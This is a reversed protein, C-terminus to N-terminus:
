WTQGRRRHGSRTWTGRRLGYLQNVIQRRVYRDTQEERERFFFAIKDLPSGITVFGKVKGALDRGVLGVNMRNNIRNLADYAVVSGLSHGVVIVRQYEPQEPQEPQEPKKLLWELKEVAGDLMAKRVKFHESKMDTATYVTVDGFSDVVFSKGLRAIQSVLLAALPSRQVLKGLVPMLMYVLRLGRGGYKLYWYKDFQLGERTRKVADSKEYKQLLAKNDEYLKRAEEGTKVLWDFVQRYNTKRQTKHAWYYEFCDIATNEEGGEILTVYNETWEGQSRIRHEAKVTRGGNQRRLNTWLGRVWSDLTEFPAQQGMGHIVLIATREKPWM